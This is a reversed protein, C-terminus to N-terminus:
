TPLQGRHDEPLSWLWPGREGDRNRKVGIRKSARRLTRENFGSATGLEKAPKPGYRLQKRLYDAASAIESRSEAGEDPAFLDSATLASVGKWEFRGEADIDFALSDGFRGLNSKVQVLARSTSDDPASGAILETRVAGTFDISGLGRHIARGGSAKSLHRVLWICANYKAALRALDDLVPRTENSRHADVDAGLYSQIPDVIVLRARTEALASDLLEVDKLTIGGPKANPGTGTTSGLVLHLRNANGGLSDFRPRLVYEPSNELSLYLTDLPTIREPSNPVRGQSLDAAVALAVFTKGGGPDGSLMALMGYALYPEWLWDIAKAQVASLRKLAPRRKARCDDVTYPLLNGSVDVGDALGDLQDRTQSLLEVPSVVFEEIGSSLTQGIKGLRRRLAAERVQKVHFDVAMKRPIGTTLDAIFGVGGCAALKGRKELQTTLSISDWREGDAEFACLAAFIERHASTGFDDAALEIERFREPELLLLGLIAQESALSAEALSPIPIKVLSAM